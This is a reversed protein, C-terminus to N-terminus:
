KDGLNLISNILKKDSDKIFESTPIRFPEVAKIYHPCHGPEFDKIRRKGTICIYQCALDHKRAEYNKQTFVKTNRESLGTRYGCTLCQRGVAM